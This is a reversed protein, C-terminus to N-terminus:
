AKAQEAMTNYIIKVDAGNFSHGVILDIGAEQCEKTIDECLEPNIVIVPVRSEGHQREFARIKAALSAGTTDPLFYDILVLCFHESQWLSFAQHGTRVDTCVEFGASALEHQFVSQWLADKEVILARWPLAECTTCRM